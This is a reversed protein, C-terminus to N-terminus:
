EIRAFNSSGRSVNCECSGQICERCLWLMVIGANQEFDVMCRTRYEGATDRGAAATLERATTELTIVAQKMNNMKISCEIAQKWADVASDFLGAQKFLRGAEQFKPEAALYDPKWKLMSTALAKKGAELAAKAEAVKAPDGIKRSM